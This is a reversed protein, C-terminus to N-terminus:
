RQDILLIIAQTLGLSQDLQMFEEEVRMQLIILRSFSGNKECLLESTHLYVGGGNSNATNQAVTIEGNVCMKSETAHIAGGNDAHNYTVSCTGGFMISSKIITLADGQQVEARVNPGILESGNIFSTKEWFHSM